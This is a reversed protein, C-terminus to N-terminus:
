EMEIFMNVDLIIHSQNSQSQTCVCLQRQHVFERQDNISVIESLDMHNCEARIFQNM